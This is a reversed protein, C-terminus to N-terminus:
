LLQRVSRWVAELGVRGICPHPENEHTLFKCNWNCYYCDMKEYVCVPKNALYVPYPAFRGFHGGGLICISKTQTAAAIHIASTENAIVLAANGIIATLQIM